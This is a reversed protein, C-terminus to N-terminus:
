DAGLWQASSLGTLFHKPNDAPTKQTSRFKLSFSFAPLIRLNRKAQLVSLVSSSNIMFPLVLTRRPSSNQPPFRLLQTQVRALKLHRLLHVLPSLLPCSSVTQPEHALDVPPLSTRTYLMHSAIVAVSLHNIFMRGVSWPPTWDKTEQPLLMGTSVTARNKM